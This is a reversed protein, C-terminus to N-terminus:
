IKYAYKLHYSLNRLCNIAIRFRYLDLYRGLSIKKPLISAGWRFEKYRRKTLNCLNFNCIFDILVREFISWVCKNIHDVYAILLSVSLFFNNNAFIERREM